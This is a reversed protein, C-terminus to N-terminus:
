MVLNVAALYPLSASTAPQSSSLFWKCVCLLTDSPSFSPSLLSSNVNNQLCLQTQGVTSDGVDLRM